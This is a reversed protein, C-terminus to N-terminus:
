TKAVATSAKDHYVSNPMVVFDGGKSSVLLAVDNEKLVQVSKKVAKSLVHEGCNSRIFDVGYSICRNNKGLLVVRIFQQGYCDCSLRQLLSTVFNRGM